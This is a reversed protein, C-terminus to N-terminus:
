RAGDAPLSEPLALRPFQDERAKTEQIAVVDVQTRELWAELREIRSRISNVNWTAILM